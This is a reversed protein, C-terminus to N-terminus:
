GGQIVFFMAGQDDAASALRGYPTDTPPYLVRGGLEAIRAVAADTEAVAFYARWHSPAGAPAEPGLVGLGGVVRDGVKVMAYPGVEVDDYTYGFVTAYFHKAGELDGSVQENWVLASPVNALETGVQRGAQWVGFTAGLPDAAIAMRGHDAVDFPETLVRGGADAIRGAIKDVDDAALYSTWLAPQDRSAKRGIGAVAHGDVTCMAYGGTEPDGVEAEWGFLDAYFEIAQEVDAVALDIWCPTGEPWAVDRIVM